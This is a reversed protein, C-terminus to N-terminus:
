FPGKLRSPLPQPVPGALALTVGRAANSVDPIGLVSAAVRRLFPMPSTLSLSGVALFLPSTTPSALAIYAGFTASAALGVLSNPLMGPGDKNLFLEEMLISVVLIGKPVALTVARPTPSIVRPRM